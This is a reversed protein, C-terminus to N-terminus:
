ELTSATGQAVLNRMVRLVVSLMALDPADQAALEAMTARARAIGAAHAREWEDIRAVPDADPSTARSIRSTLGAVVGYLDARLAQRALASWHDDRALGTIRVLTHDVEYRESIAFYLPLLTAPDEGTRSSVEKIDLLSFVDLGASVASALELPVGMATFREVNRTFREAEAGRLADPVRAAYDTIIPGFRKIMDAVNIEAGRTQLFWRTGRDLLRRVELHLADQATTPIRNDQANIANWLAHIGFVELAATGAKVVDPISAGTEEVARFVFTIGGMNILRNVTVTTIIQPRLPHEALRRGFRDVIPAPFYRRLMTEFWPDSVLAGDGLVGTAQIKAYALLVSLEPSTLGLGAAERATLEADDPLAELARNLLGSRELEAIM